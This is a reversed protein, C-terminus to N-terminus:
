VGERAAARRLRRAALSMLKPTATLYWYTSTVNVHGVYTCLSLIVRDVDINQAYWRELRRCIFSFRLDHVRPAAHGGRSRWGLQKRIRIFAHQVVSSTLPKGEDTLFFKQCEPCAILRDRRAAYHQLARTTSSHLPVYRMKHFKAERIHLLSGEFNVDRRELALAESVRLGTAALLGFLTAFSDARLRGGARLRAATTVLSRIEATSYIHPTRRRFAPGFFEAPPIENRPDLRHCFRTFPHLQALRAAAASQGPSKSAQAWALALACTLPGRHGREEAFRAFGRLQSGIIRMNCGAQRREALYADVRQHITNAHSM